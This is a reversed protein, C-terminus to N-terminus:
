ILEHFRLSVRDPLVETVVMPEVVAHFCDESVGDDLIASSCGDVITLKVLRALKYNSACVIPLNLVIKIQDKQMSNDFDPALIRHDQLCRKVSVHIHDNIDGHTLAIAEHGRAAFVANEDKPVKLIACNDLFELMIVRRLDVSEAEHHDPAVGLLGVLVESGAGLCDHTVKRSSGHNRVEAMM